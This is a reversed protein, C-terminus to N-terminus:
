VLQKIILRASEMESQLHTHIVLDAQLPEIYPSTIGTFNEIKGNRAKKYLGKADRKECVELPCNIWTEIFNNSGIIERATKRDEITPSIFASIVHIGNDVVIKCVEAVRRLNEKRDNMTFGLDKCLGKRMDDGDLIICRVGISNLHNWVIQSITSKGSGSLGTMWVTKGKTLSYSLAAGSLNM